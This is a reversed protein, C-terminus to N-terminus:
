RRETENQQALWQTLDMELTTWEHVNPDGFEHEKPLTGVQKYGFHKKYWGITEPRDANTVVRQVGQEAMARLREAQLRLGIGLRRCDPDVVMLQTKGTTKSLIKYGSAGVIKDGDRAVFYYRYDLEPMEESPIYHMNAFELLKMIEPVDQAAAKEITIDPM